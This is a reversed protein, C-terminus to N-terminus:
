KISVLVQKLAEVEATRIDILARCDENSLELEKGRPMLIKKGKLRRLVGRVGACKSGSRVSPAIDMITYIEEDLKDIQSKIQTAIKLQEDTM